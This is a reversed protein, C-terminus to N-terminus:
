KQMNGIRDGVRVHEAKGCWPGPSAAHQCDSVIQEHLYQPGDLYMTYMLLFTLSIACFIGFVPGIIDKANM